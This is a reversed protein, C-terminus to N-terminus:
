KKLHFFDRLSLEAHDLIAALLENEQLQGIVSLSSEDIVYLLHYAGPHLHPLIMFVPMSAAACLAYVPLTKHKEIRVRRAMFSALYRSVGTKEEIAAAYLLYCALLIPSSHFSGLLAKFICFALLIGSLVRGSALLIHLVRSRDFYKSLIALLMRGGDLPLVPLLNICLMLLNCQIFYLLLPHLFSLRISLIFAFTGVLLNCLVGASSLFFAKRRPLAEVFPIQMSGGFPTLEIQAVPIHMAVACLLHASEHLLLVILYAAVFYYAGSVSLFLLLVPFLPHIRLVCGHVSLIRM